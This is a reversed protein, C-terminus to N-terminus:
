RGDVVADAHDHPVTFWGSALPWHCILDQSWTLPTSGSGRYISGIMFAPVMCACDGGFRAGPVADEFRSLTGGNSGQTYCM